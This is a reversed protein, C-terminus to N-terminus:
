AAPRPCPTFDLYYSEGCKFQELAPPNDVSMTLDGNPTYKHYRANEEIEGDSPSVASFRLQKTTSGAVETVSQLRFKARVM